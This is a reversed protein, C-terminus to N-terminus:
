IRSLAISYPIFTAKVWLKTTVFIDERPIGSFEMHDNPRIIQCEFSIYRLEGKLLLLASTQKM